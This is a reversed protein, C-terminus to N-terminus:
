TSPCHHYVILDLLQIGTQRLREATAESSAVAGDIKGKMKALGDIFYNTTSGTGVGVIDDLQIYELAAEAAIQKNKESSMSHLQIIIESIFLNIYLQYKFAFCPAKATETVKHTASFSLTAFVAIKVFRAIFIRFQFSEYYYNGITALFHKNAFSHM